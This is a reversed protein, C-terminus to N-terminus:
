RDFEVERADVVGGPDAFGDVQVHADLALSERTGHRYHTDPTLRVRQSGNVVFLDAGLLATVFGDIDVGDGPEVILSPDIVSVGVATVQNQLPPDDVDIEVYLGNALGGPPAGEIVAGAYDVFLGALRFTEAQLDLDAITGRVELEPDDLVHEVRSARIAEDAGFFGGVDVIDGVRLAALATPEFVTTPSVLVTQGMLRLTGAAQDIAELPGEVLNDVAVIEATGRRGGPQVVGRVRTVMGLRLDAASVPDGEITIVASSVDLEIGNVLISGFGSIPGEITSTGAIGGGMKVTGCAAVAAVLALARIVVSKASSDM